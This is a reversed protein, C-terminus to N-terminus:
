VGFFLIIKKVDVQAAQVDANEMTLKVVVSDAATAFIYSNLSPIRGCVSLGNEKAIPAGLVRSSDCYYMNGFESWSEKIIGSVIGFFLIFGM